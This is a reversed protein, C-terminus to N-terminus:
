QGLGSRACDFLDANEDASCALIEGAGTVVELELPKDGQAGHRFSAVGLGAVSVTGGVTVGLNNTLTPPVLGLPHLHEVLDRWIVGAQVTATKAARDVALIKDLSNVDILIGGENLAQGTQTHAQARTSVPIRHRRAFALAAVIDKPGAPRLIAWPTKYKMRGFDGSVAALASEETLVQGTVSSRLEHIDLRAGPTQSSNRSGTMIAWCDSTAWRPWDLHDPAMDLRGRLLMLAPDVSGGRSRFSSEAERSRPRRGMRM